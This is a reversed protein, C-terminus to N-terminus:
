KNEKHKNEIELALAKSLKQQEDLIEQTTKVVILSDVKEKNETYENLVKSNKISGSQKLMVSQTAINDAKETLTFFQNYSLGTVAFVILLYHKWLMQQVRRKTYWYVGTALLLLVLYQITNLIEFQM